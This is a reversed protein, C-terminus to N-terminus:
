GEEEPEDEFVKFQIINNKNEKKPLEPEYMQELYPILEDMTFPGFPQKAEFMDLAKGYGRLEESNVYGVIMEETMYAVNMKKGVDKYEAGKGLVSIIKIKGITPIVWVQGAMIPKKRKNFLYFWLSVGVGTVIGSFFVALIDLTEM